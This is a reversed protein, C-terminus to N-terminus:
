RQESFAKIKRALDQVSLHCAEAQELTTAHPIFKNEAGIIKLRVPQAYSAYYEAVASGFGGCAYGEEFTIIKRDAIDRLLREDLPRISRCNVVQTDGCGEMARTELARRVARAPQQASPSAAQGARHVTRPAAQAPQAAGTNLTRGANVQREAQYQAVDSPRVRNFSRTRRGGAAAAARAQRRAEEYSQQSAAADTQINRPASGDAHYVTRQADGTNLKRPESM